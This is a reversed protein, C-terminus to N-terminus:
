ACNGVEKAGPLYGKYLADAMSHLKDRFLKAAKIRAEELSPSYLKVVLYASDYRDQAPRFFVKELDAKRIQWRGNLKEGGGVGYLMKPTEREVTVNFGFLETDGFDYYIEFLPEAM